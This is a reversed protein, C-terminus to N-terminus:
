KEYCDGWENGISSLYSGDTYDQRLEVLDVMYPRLEKLVAYLGEEIM